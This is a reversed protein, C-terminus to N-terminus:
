LMSPVVYVRSDVMILCHPLTFFPVSNTSSNRLTMSNSKFMSHSANSPKSGLSGTTLANHQM